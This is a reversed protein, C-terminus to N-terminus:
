MWTREGPTELRGQGRFGIDIGFRLDWVNSFPGSAVGGKDFDGEFPIRTVGLFSSFGTDVVGGAAEFPYTGPTPEDFVRTDYM